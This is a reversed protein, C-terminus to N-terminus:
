RIGSRSHAATPSIGHVETVLDRTEGPIVAPSPEPPCPDHDDRGRMGYRRRGRAAGLAVARVASLPAGQARRRGGVSASDHETHPPSWLPNLVLPPRGRPRSSSGPQQSSPGPHWRRHPRASAACPVLVVAHNRPVLAGEGRHNLASIKTIRGRCAVVARLRIFVLGATVGTGM